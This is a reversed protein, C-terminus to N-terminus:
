DESDEDSTDDPGLQDLVLELCFERKDSNAFKRFEYEDNSKVLAGKILALCKEADSMEECILNYSGAKSTQDHEGIQCNAAVPDIDRGRAPGSDEAVVPTSLSTLAISSALITKFKKM